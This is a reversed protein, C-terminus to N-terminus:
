RGPIAMFLKPVFLYQFGRLRRCIVALRTDVLGLKHVITFQSILITEMPVILLALM